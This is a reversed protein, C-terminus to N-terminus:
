IANTQTQQRFQGVVSTTWMNETLTQTIETIQFFGYERYKKPIGWVNFVDGRRLGSKGLIKFSYKIPLPHSTYDKETKNYEEFANNKLVDFLQTDDCCYIRFNDRFAYDGSVTIDLTEPVITDREPNPIVDIKALNANITNTTSTAVAKEAVEIDESLKRFKRGLDTDAYYEKVTELGVLGALGASIPGYTIQTYVGENTTPDVYNVTVIDSNPNTRAMVKFAKQVWNGTLKEPVLSKKWAEKQAKLKDLQAQAAVNQQTKATNTGGGALKSSKYYEIGKFFMDTEKSFIGGTKMPKSDPNSTYETLKSDPDNAYQQRRLIIANTMEAPIDIDLNAELFVSKEGNHVFNLVAQKNKGTWNEDIIQLTIDGNGDVQEVIQFNWFSNVASSMENLMDMLVERISKNSSNRMAEVFVNFNIFLNGLQGYYGDKETMGLYTGKSADNPDVLAPRLGNGDRSYQCFSCLFPAGYITNDIFPTQLISNVDVNNPNLYYLQFDPIKGPILLKSPKTSFIGPFAGIFGTTAIRIKVQKNGIKYSVLGNNANLIDLAREFRIYRNESFLREKPIKTSGVKFEKLLGMKTRLTDGINDNTFNYISDAAIKDFNILDWHGINTFQKYVADVIKAVEPTQRQAPLKNFAWKWRRAAMMQFMNGGTTSTLEVDSYPAFTPIDNIKKGIINGKADTEDVLPNINQHLQLYSPIGPMGRLKVTLIYNEGESSMSGGVIFGFFSDYTGNSDIRKTHLNSENLNENAAEIVIQDSPVPKGAGNEIETLQGFAAAGNWGYEILLSHGPEMCYEQIREAQALSFCHITMTAHRSIQDKGEKVELGTIVPTPRLVLDGSFPTNFPFVPDLKWDYGLFGANYKSGYVSAINKKTGILKGQKDYIPETVDSTIPVNPNSGFILGKGTGSIVRIFPMLSSANYQTNYNRVSPQNTSMISAYINSDITSFIPYPM